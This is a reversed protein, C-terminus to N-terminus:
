DCRPGVEKQGYMRWGHKRKPNAPNRTVSPTTTTVLDQAAIRAAIGETEDAWRLAMDTGMAPNMPMGWIPMQLQQQQSQVQAEDVIYRTQQRLANLSAALQPDSDLSQWAHMWDVTPDPAPVASHIVPPAKAPPEAAMATDLSPLAAVIDQAHGRLVGLQMLTDVTLRAVSHNTEVGDAELLSHYARASMRPSIWQLWEKLEHPRLDRRHHQITYDRGPAMSPGNMARDAHLGRHGFPLQSVAM